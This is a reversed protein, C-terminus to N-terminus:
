GPFNGWGKNELTFYLTAGKVMGMWNMDIQSPPLRSPTADIADPAEVRFPRRTKSILPIAPARRRAARAAGVPRNRTDATMLPRGRAHGAQCARAAGGGVTIRYRGFSVM